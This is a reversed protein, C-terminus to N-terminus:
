PSCTLDPMWYSLQGLAPISDRRVCSLNGNVDYFDITINAPNVGDINQVTLASNYVSWMNKFLMPVYVLTSGGTFGDFSAVDAGMHPRGVAVVPQSSEVKV